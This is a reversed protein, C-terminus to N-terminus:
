TWSYPSPKSFSCIATPRGCLNGGSNLSEARLRRLTRSMKQRPARRYVSNRASRRPLERDAEIVRL